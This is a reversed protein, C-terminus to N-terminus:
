FNDLLAVVVPGMCAVIMFKSKLTCDAVFATDGRTGKQSM